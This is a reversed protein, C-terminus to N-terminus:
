ADGADDRCFTHGQAHIHLIFQYVFARLIAYKQYVHAQVNGFPACVQEVVFLMYSVLHGQKLLPGKHMYCSSHACISCASIWGDLLKRRGRVWRQDSIYSCRRRRRLKYLQGKAFKDDGISCTVGFGGSTGSLPAATHMGVAVHSERTSMNGQLPAITCPSACAHMRSAVHLRRHHVRCLMCSSGSGRHGMLTRMHKYGAVAVLGPGGKCYRCEMRQLM